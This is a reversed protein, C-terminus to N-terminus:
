MYVHTHHSTQKDGSSKGVCGTIQLPSDRTATNVWRSVAVCMSLTLSVAACLDSVVHVPIYMYMYTHYRDSKRILQQKGNNRGGDKKRRGYENRGGEGERKGGENRGGRGEERRGEERGKERGEENRGGERGKEEEGKGKEKSGEGNREEEGERKEGWKKGRGKGRRIYHLDNDVLNNDLM